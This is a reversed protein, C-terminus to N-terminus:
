NLRIIRQLTNGAGAHLKLLFVGKASNLESESIVFSHEGARENQTDRLMKIKKGSLDFIELTVDSNKKLTYSVTTNGSFPNPHVKFESIIELARVSTTDAISDIKMMTFHDRIISDESLFRADLRNGSIDIIVSGGKEDYGTYMVPHNLPAGSDLSGSSGCVVYVTGDGGNPQNLDKVYAEGLSDIGSSGDVLMTGPDFTSSNGYHGKIMFSREYVHSHGCVVLDVDYRDFIPVFNERMAIMYREFFVDSDHSGKSYPLQHFFVIVWPKTNAQLDQELWQTMPSGSFNGLPNAGTWDNSSSTLAGLESNLSIFHVNSYDFSYYLEYGSAVGGMEGYKPVEIIDYYPGTHTTPDKSNQPPSIVEYDHNGPCPMFPMFKMIDGYYSYDFVKDQYQQDTGNDYANDGLWIWVDTHTNRTYHLFADRVKQQRTNGKGFDGTAWIRVPQVTGPAPSTTFQHLSDPGSLTQSTSGVSYYYKTFPSLGTLQVRHETTQINDTASQTLSGPETGYNVK